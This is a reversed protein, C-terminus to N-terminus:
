FFVACSSLLFSLVNFFVQNRGIDEEEKGKKWKLFTAFCSFLSPLLLLGLAPSTPQREKAFQKQRRSDM